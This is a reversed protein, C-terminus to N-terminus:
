GGAAGRACIAVDAGSAALAMAIARGIGRSGGAVVAKKGEFSIQM